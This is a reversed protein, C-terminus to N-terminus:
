RVSRKKDRKRENAKRLLKRLDKIDKIIQAKNKAGRSQQRLLNIQKQINAVEKGANRNFMKRLRKTTEGYVVSGIITRQLKEDWERNMGRRNWEPNILGVMKEIETIPRFLRALHELRGPIRTNFFDKEGIWNGMTTSDNGTIKNGFFFNYNALQEVPAKLVPSLMNIMEKAPDSMKALDGIPMLGDLTIYRSKGNRKGIFVPMSDKVWDPLLKRDEDTGSMVEVNNKLKIIRTQKSPTKILAELQLPINKRSWTYFPIVRKIWKEADTVDDYDFLYKKVSNAAESASLGSNRKAIFHALKANDEIGKGAAAGVDSAKDWAKAPLNWKKHIARITDDGFEGSLFGTHGLGQMDFDRLIKKEFTSLKDINKVGYKQIKAAMIYDRPDWVDALSNQVINTIANRGHFPINMLTATKKWANLINDYKRIVEAKKAPNNFLKYTKDLHDALETPYQLRDLKPFAKVIEKSLPKTKVGTPVSGPSYALASSKNILTDVKTIKATDAATRELIEDINTSFLKIGIGKNIESISGQRLKGIQGKKIAEIELSSLTKVPQPIGNRMQGDFINGSDLNIVYEGKLKTNPVNGNWILINRGLNPKSFESSSTFKNKSNKIHALQKYSKNGIIDMVNGEADKVSIKDLDVGITKKYKNSLDRRLIVALKESENLARDTSREGYWKPLKTLFDKDSNILINKKKFKIQFGKGYERRMKNMTKLQLKTPKGYIRVGGNFAEITQSDKLMRYVKAEIMENGFDKPIYGLEEALKNLAKARSVEDASNALMSGDSLIFDADNFRKPTNFLKNDKLSKIVNDKVDRIHMKDVDITDIVESEIAKTIQSVDSNSLGEKKMTRKLISIQSGADLDIKRKLENSKDILKLKKQWEVHGVNSPRIKTSINTLSDILNKIVPTKRVVDTAKDIGKMVTGAAKETGLIPRGAVLFASGVGEKTKGAKREAKIFKYADSGKKVKGYKDLNKFTSVANGTDDAWGVRKVWKVQKAAKATKLLKAAKNVAGIGGVYTLPDTAVDAAFGLVGKTAKGAFGKPEWGLETMVDSMSTKEKLSLGEYFSKLPTFDGGDVADRITNAIGYQPANLVNLIRFVINEKEKTKKEPEGLDALFGGSYSSAPKYAGQGTLDSLFDSKETRVKSPKSNLDDLFGSSKEEPRSTTNSDLDDLFGM